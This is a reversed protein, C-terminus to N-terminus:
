KMSIRAPRLETHVRSLRCGIESVWYRALARMSPLEYSNRTSAAFSTPTLSALVGAGDKMALSGHSLGPGGPM